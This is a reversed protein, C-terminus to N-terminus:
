ESIEHQICRLTGIAFGEMDEYEELYTHEGHELIYQITEVSLSNRPIAEILDLAYDAARIIDKAYNERNQRFEGSFYKESGYERHKKCVRKAHKLLTKREDKSLTSLPLQTSRLANLNISQDINPIEVNALAMALSDQSEAKIKTALSYVESIETPWGGFMGPTPVHLQDLLRKLCNLEWAAYAYESSLSDQIKPTLEPPKGCHWGRNQSDVIPSTKLNEDATLYEAPICLYDLM